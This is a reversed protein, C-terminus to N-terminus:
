KHMEPQEWSRKIAVQIEELQLITARSWLEAKHKEAQTEQRKVVTMWRFWHSDCSSGTEGSMIQSETHEKSSRTNEQPRSVKWTHGHTGWAISRNEEIRAEKQVQQGTQSNDQDKNMKEQSNTNSIDSQIDERFM